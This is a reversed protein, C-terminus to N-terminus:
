HKAKGLNLKAANLELIRFTITIQGASCSLALFLPSVALPCFKIVSVPNEISDM